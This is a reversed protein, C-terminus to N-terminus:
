HRAMYLSMLRANLSLFSEGERGELEWDAATALACTAEDRPVHSMREMGCVVVLEHAGSAVALHALRMAAAGSSCAGEATMAEVGRMGAVDAVLPGLLQQRGLIGSMMNGVYLADVQAPDAGADDLAALVAARALYR